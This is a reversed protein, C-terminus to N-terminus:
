KLNSPASLKEITLPAAFEQVLNDEVDFCQWDNLSGNSSMYFRISPQLTFTIDRNQVSQCYSVAENIGLISITEGVTTSSTSWKAALDVTLSVSSMDSCHSADNCAKLQYVYVGLETFATTESSFEFVGVPQNIVLPLSSAGSPLTEVLEYYGGVRTGNFVWSLSATNGLSSESPTVVFNKPAGPTGYVQIRLSPGYSGCVGSANCAQYSLFHYGTITATYNTTDTVNTIVALEVLNNGDLEGTEVKVNYTSANAVAPLDIAVASSLAHYHGSDITPNNDPTDPVPLPVSATTQGWSGCPLQPNCGRVYFTYTGYQTLSETEFSYLNTGGIHSINSLNVQTGNPRTYKREYHTGQYIAHGVAPWSITTKGGQTVIGVTASPVATYPSGYSLTRRWASLGGCGSTNCAKYKIYNYGWNSRTGINAQNSSTTAM